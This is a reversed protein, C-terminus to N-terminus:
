FYVSNSILSPLCDYLQLWRKLSGSKTSVTLKVSSLAVQVDRRRSTLAATLKIM